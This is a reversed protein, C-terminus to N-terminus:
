QAAGSAVDSLSVNSRGAIAIAAGSGTTDASYLPNLDYITAFDAPFIDHTSGASYEPQAAFPRQTAVQSTRRFDNLTVVGDVVGALAAPIQPDSANAIHMAGNVRYNHIETRFADFVQGATGSFVVLRRGPPIEDIAFGHAALWSTVQALQTDSAGFEAGFEDPTLWQQYQPSSPDQQAEVLADLATQQEASPSLVLLLRELRMNASVAGLDFEAHALPHVNGQLTVTQSEDVPQTGRFTTTTPLACSTLATLM